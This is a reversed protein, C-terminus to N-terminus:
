RGCWGKCDGCTGDYYRIADVGNTIFAKFTYNAVSFFNTYDGSFVDGYVCSAINLTDPTLSGLPAALFTITFDGTGYNVFSTDTTIGVGTM